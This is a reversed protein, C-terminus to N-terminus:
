HAARLAQVRELNLRARQYDPRLELARRLQEAAADIQGREALVVALNNRVEASGGGGKVLDDFMKAAAPLDGRSLAEVGLQFASAPLSRQPASAPPQPPLEVRRLTVSRGISTGQWRIAVVTGLSALLLGAAVLAPRLWGKLSPVPPRGISVVGAVASKEIPQRSAAVAAEVAGVRQAIQSVAEASSAPVPRMRQFDDGAEKLDVTLREVGAQQSAIKTTHEDRARQAATLEEISRVALEARAIAREATARAEVEAQGQAAQVEEIVRQWEERQASGSAAEADLRVAVVTLQQECQQVAGSLATRDASVQRLLEATREDHARLTGGLEEIRRLADDARAAAEAGSSHATDAVASLRQECEQVAASLATRESAAQAVLETAREERARQVATVEEISRVALEARAIARDATARAEVEAQGQAAQVEEIVRRWEERQASGSAADADLRVAVATVRQECEQMASSLAGREASLQRLLEATREDHARLTGGLEEIRRLADDARAVAEAGTSHATDATERQMLQAQEIMRRLEDLPSPDNVPIAEVRATLAGLHQECRHVEASLADREATLRKLLDTTHEDHSGEAAERERIRCLAEEARSLAQEGAARAAAEAQHQALQVQEITRRLEDLQSLDGAPSAELRAALAAVRQECEQVAVRLADREAVDKASADGTGEDRARQAAAQEEVKRLAEEVRAMAQEGAARVTAETHRQALQLQEIVTRLEDQQPLAGAPGADRCASLAALQQQCEHVATILADRDATFRAMVASLAGRPVGFRSREAADPTRPTDEGPM